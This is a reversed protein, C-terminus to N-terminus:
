CCCSHISAINCTSYVQQISMILDFKHNVSVYRWGVSFLDSNLMTVQRQLVLHSGRENTQETLNYTELFFFDGGFFCGLAVKHYQFFYFSTFYVETLLVKRYIITEDTLLELYWTKGPALLQGRTRWVVCSINM